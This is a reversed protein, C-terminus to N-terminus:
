DRIRHLLSSGQTYTQYAASCVVVVFICVAWAGDPLAAVGPVGLDSAAVLLGGLVGVSAYYESWALGYKPVVEMYVNLDGAREALRIIGDGGEEVINLAELKPIHTQQLSVYVSQRVDRPAPTTGSETAGIRESLERLTVGGSAQLIEITMRRRDNRLVDHIDSEELPAGVGALREPVVLRSM